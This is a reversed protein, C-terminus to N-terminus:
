LRMLSLAVKALNMSETGGQLFGNMDKPIYAEAIQAARLNGESTFKAKFAAHLDILKGNELAAIRTEGNRTFTVLKM